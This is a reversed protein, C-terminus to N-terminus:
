GRSRKETPNDFIAIMFYDVGTYPWEKWIVATQVMYGNLTLANVIKSMSEADQIKLECIKM